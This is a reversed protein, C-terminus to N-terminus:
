PTRRHRGSRRGRRCALAQERRRVDAAADVIRHEGEALPGRVDGGAVLRHQVRQDGGAGVHVQLAGPLVAGVGHEVVGALRRRSEEQRVARGERRVDRRTEAPEVFQPRDHGGVGPQDVGASSVTLLWEVLRLGDGDGVEQQIVARAEVHAADIVLRRGGLVRQDIPGVDHRRRSSRPAVGSM